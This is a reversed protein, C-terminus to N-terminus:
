NHPIASWDVTGATTVTIGVTFGTATKSTVAGFAVIGSTAQLNIAYNATGINTSFSVSLSTQLLVVNEDGSRYELKKEYAPIFTLNDVLDTCGKSIADAVVAAKIQANWGAPNGTDLEVPDVVTMIGSTAIAPDFCTYYVGITFLGSAYLNENGYRTIIALHAM